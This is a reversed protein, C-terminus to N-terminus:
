GATTTATRLDVRVHGNDVTAPYTVLGKGDAPHAAGHCDVFAARAQKWAITCSPEAPLRAEIASWGTDPDSGLHQLYINRGRGLSLPDQFLFPGGDGIAKALRTARGVEFTPSGLNAKDPNKSAFSVVAWVVAAAMALTVSTGVVMTVTSRRARRPPPPM